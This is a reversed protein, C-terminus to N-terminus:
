SKSSKSQDNQNEGIYAHPFKKICRRKKEKKQIRGTNVRSMSAIVNKANVTIVAM